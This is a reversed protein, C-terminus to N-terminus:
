ESQGASSHLPAAPRIGASGAHDDRAAGSLHEQAATLVHPAQQLALAFRNPPALERDAHCGICGRAERPMVWVWSQMAQLVTGDADLTRWRLPMRAPVEVYFSGDSEVPVEGLLEETVAQSRRGTCLGAAVDAAAPRGADAIWRRSAPAVSESEVPPVGTGCCDVRARFVQLRRIQGAAVRGGADTNSLYANLCYLSGTSRREDVVSARGAPVPRPHVLHADVEHWEPSDILRATRTGSRPDLVYVGYSEDGRRYSVLLNGDPLAAPSHYLGDPEGAVLKRTHLSRTRQVAVLEGGRDWGQPTSEVFVIRGTSTECPMGRWLPRQDAAAFIFVDTGDTNVTLLSWQDGGVADRQESTSRQTYLLRGDSLLLPDSAAYPSFTIRRLQRGSLPSTYLAAPQHRHCDVPPVGTGCLSHSPRENGSGRGTCLGPAVNGPGACFAIQYVPKEAEAPSVGAGGMTYLTSLYIAASCPGAEATVQRVSTGDVSM